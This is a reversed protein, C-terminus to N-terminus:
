KNRTKFHQKLKEVLPHNFFHLDKQKTDFSYFTGDPKKFGSVEREEVAKFDNTDFDEIKFYISQGDGLQLFISGEAYISFRSKQEKTNFSEPNGILSIFQKLTLHNLDMYYKHMLDCMETNHSEKLIPKLSKPYVREKTVFPAKFMWPYREQMVVVAIKNLFIDVYQSTNIYIDYFVKKTYSNLGCTVVKHTYVADKKILLEEKGYTYFDYLNCDQIALEDCVEAFREITIGWRKVFEQITKCKSATEVKDLHLEKLDIRYLNFNSDTPHYNKLNIM